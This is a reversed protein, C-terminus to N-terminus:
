TKPFLICFIHFFVDALILLHTKRIRGAPARELPHLGQIRGATPLIYGFM